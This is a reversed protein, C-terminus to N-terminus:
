TQNGNLAWIMPRLKLCSEEYEREPDSGAVIGCGAYLLAQNGRLLASRIAVVFEGGGRGDVWGVPGSYWGRDFKEYSRILPLAARTPLGGAAPTPHLREVLELVHREGNVAGEVPTHLHQVNPMSLLNPTAPVSLSSCLPGLANRLARVVLAHEHREKQDAFLAEGLAQDEDESAGRATSGALCDARVIGADLQVLREPTAGLFCTEGRAFAFVTCGGYEARLRRIVAAPELPGLIRARIRRALVLKEITGRRVDRVVAAVAEKWRDAEAEDAPAVESGPWEGGAVVVGGELLRCLDDAAADAATRTDCGPKALASVTLWSSGGRSTFLFRPVTLLADPYREWHPERRRAPDFAFGGLCVPAAVPAPDVVDTVARSMLGRWAATVQSFRDDGRGTLRAAAGVAVLSFGESPQEWFVREEAKARAFLEAPDTLPVRATTSVLVPEGSQAARREGAELARGLQESFAAQRLPTTM